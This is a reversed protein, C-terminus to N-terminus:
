GTATAALAPRRHRVPLVAVGDAARRRVAVQVLPVALADDADAVLLPRRQPVDVLLQEAVRPVPEVGGGGVTAQRLRRVHVAREPPQVLADVVDARPPRVVVQQVAVRPPALARDGEAGVVVPRLPELQRRAEVPADAVDAALEAAQLVVLRRAVACSRVM